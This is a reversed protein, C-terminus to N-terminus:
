GRLRAQLARLRRNVPNHEVFGHRFPEPVHLRTTEDVWAVARACLDAAEATDGLLALAQAAALWPAM